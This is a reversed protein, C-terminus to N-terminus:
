WGTEEHFPSHQNMMRGRHSRPGQRWISWPKSTLQPPPEQGHFPHIITSHSLVTNQANGYLLVNLMTKGHRKCQTTRLLTFQFISDFPLHASRLRILGGCTYAYSQEVIVNGREMESRESPRNCAWWSVQPYCHLFRRHWVSM